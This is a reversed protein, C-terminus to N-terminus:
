EVGLYYKVKLYPKISELVTEACDTENQLHTLDMEDHNKASKLAKIKMQNELMKRKSQIEIVKLSMEYRTANEEEERLHTHFEVNKTLYDKEIIRGYSFDRKNKEIQEKYFKAKAQFNIFNLQKLSELTIRTTKELEVYKDKYQVLLTLKKNVGESYAPDLRFKESRAEKAVADLKKILAKRKEGIYQLLAKKKFYELDNQPFLDSIAVNTFFMSLMANMSSDLSESESVTQSPVISDTM